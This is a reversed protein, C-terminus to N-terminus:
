WGEWRSSPTHTHMSHEVPPGGHVRLERTKSPNRESVCFSYNSHYMTKKGELHAWFPPFCLGDHDHVVPLLIHRQSHFVNIKWKGWLPCAVVFPSCFDHSSKFRCLKSCISDTFQDWAWAPTKKRMRIIITEKTELAHMNIGYQYIFRSFLFGLGHFIAKISENKECCNRDLICYLGIGLPECSKHSPMIGEM